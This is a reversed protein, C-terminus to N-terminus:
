QLGDSERVDILEVTQGTRAAANKIDICARDTYSVVGLFSEGFRKTLCRIHVVRGDTKVLRTGWDQPELSRIDRLNVDHTIALNRVHLVEGQIRASTGEVFLVLALAVLSMGGVVGLSMADWDGSGGSVAVIFGIAL